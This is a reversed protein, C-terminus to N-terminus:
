EEEGTYAIQGYCYGKIYYNRAFKFLRNAFDLKEADDLPFPIIFGKADSMLEDAIQSVIMDCIEENSKM